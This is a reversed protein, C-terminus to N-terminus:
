LGSTAPSVTRGHVHSWASQYFHKDLALTISFFVISFLAVKGMLRELMGWSGIELYMNAALVVGVALITAALPYVAMTVVSVDMQKKLEMLIYMFSIIASIDVALAVGIVGQWELLSFISVLLVVLGIVHYFFVSKSNGEILNLNLIFGQVTKLALFPLLAWFIPVVPLWKEGYLLEIFEPLVLALLAFCGLTALLIMKMVMFFFDHLKQRQTRIEGVIPGFVTLLPVTVLQQFLGGVSHSRTYFGLSASGVFNGLVVKDLQAAIRETISGVYVYKGFQLFEKAVKWDMVPVLRQPVSVFTLVATIFQESGVLWILSWLGYGKSALFVAIAVASTVSFVKIIALRQFLMIKYMYISYVSVIMSICHILFLTLFPVHLDDDLPLIGTVMIMSLLLSIILVTYVRFALQMSIFVNINKKQRLIAPIQGFDTGLAWLIGLYSVILAQQGFIAPDIQRALYIGGGFKVVLSLVNVLNTWYLGRLFRSVISM